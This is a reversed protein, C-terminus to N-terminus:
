SSYEITPHSATYDQLLEAVNRLFTGGRLFVLLSSISVSQELYHNGGFYGHIEVPSCPTADRVVTINM